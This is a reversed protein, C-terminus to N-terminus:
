NSPVSLWVPASPTSMALNGIGGLAGAGARSAPSLSSGPSGATPHLACELPVMAVLKLDEFSFM